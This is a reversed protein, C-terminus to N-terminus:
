SFGLLYSWFDAHHGRGRPTRIIEFGESMWPSIARFSFAMSCWIPKLSVHKVDLKIFISGGSGWQSRTGEFFCVADSGQAIRGKDKNACINQHLRWLTTLRHTLVIWAMAEQLNSGSLVFGELVERCLLARSNNSWKRRRPCQLCGFVLYTVPVSIHHSPFRLRPWLTTFILCDKHCRKSFLRDDRTTWSSVFFAYQVLPAM